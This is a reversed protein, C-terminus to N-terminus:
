ACAQAIRRWESRLAGRPWVPQLAVAEAIRGCFGSFTDVRVVLARALRVYQRHDWACPACGGQSSGRRCAGARAAATADHLADAAALLPAAAAHHLLPAAHVGGCVAVVAGSTHAADVRTGRLLWLPLVGPETCDAGQAASCTGKGPRLWGRLRGPERAEDGGGAYAEPDYVDGVLDAKDVGTSSKSVSTTSHVSGEHSATRKVECLEGAFAAQHADRAERDCADSARLSASHEVWVIRCHCRRM